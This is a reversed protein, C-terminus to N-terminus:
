RIWAAEESLPLPSRWKKSRGNSLREAKAREEIAGKPYGYRELALSLNHHYVAESPNEAVAQELCRVADRNRHLAMLIVGKVNFDKADANTDSIADELFGLAESYRHLRYMSAAIEPRCADYTDRLLFRARQFRELAGTYDGNRYTHYGQSELSFCLGHWSLSLNALLFVLVCGLCTLRGPTAKVHM